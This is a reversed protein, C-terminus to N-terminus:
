ESRLATVPDVRAARLAPIFAAGAAISCLLVSVVIFTVGDYASVGKVQSAIFRMLVCTTAAGLVLGIATLSLAHGLIGRIVTAPEAGIAIRIGIERRRRAVSCAVVGYLGVAAVIAALIAFSTLLGAALRQPAISMQTLEEGTHAGYLPVGPYAEQWERQIEHLLEKPEGRTRVILNATPLQWQWAAFYMYPEAHEWVSVYKSDRALGVVEVLTRRGPEDEVLITRGVANSGHWLREALTQNVIVAKAVYGRDRWTFERGALIAIGMTHFYEPGVMNYAAQLGESSHSEADVVHMTSQMTLPVERAVTATQVGTTSSIRRLAAECFLQGRGDNYQEKPLDYSMILLDAPRFGLDVRYAKLVSRAFIGGGVLLVMSFAVQVVVLLHRLWDRSHGQLPANGSEKLSSMIDPQSTQLAPALGFLLVTALSLSFGFLLVRSGIGLCLALPIGFANPFSSLVKDLGFAILLAVSFSAAVLLLNEAMLQRILCGRGAGLAIRIAMERRRVLARELLLNSVNACALLLVLGAGASFVVLLETISGRYAPWFKSRSASFVAVTIGRNTAPETGALNAAILRLEAQAQSVTVGPRLRGLMVMWRATRQHFIDFERFRPLLLPIASLPIWAQPPDGWNLNAGRYRKPVIGIVLFPRNELTIMKGILSSHGGFRKLWLEESVMVVPVASSSEGDGPTFARGTLPPLKLMSFYDASVAEVPIRETYEGITLNLPFRAYACLHQFSQSHKSFDEYDPYSSSVYNATKKDFSYVAVLQGAEPLPLPSLLTEDTANFIATAAGIGLALTLVAAVTFAPNKRLRRAGYRLDQAFIEISGFRWLERSTEKLRTVNGLQRRAAYHAEESPVGQERLKQERMALHFQLEDDLDRDLERRKVLAKVRLWLASLRESLLDSAKRGPPHDQRRREQNARHSRSDSM